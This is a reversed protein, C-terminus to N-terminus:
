DAPYHRRRNRDRQRDAEPHEGKDRQAVLIEGPPRDRTQDGRKDHAHDVHHESLAGRHNIRRADGRGEKQPQQEIRQQMGVSNSRRAGRGRERHEERDNQHAANKLSKEPQHPEAREDLERRMRHHRAELVHRRRQEEEHLNAVHEAEILADAKCTCKAIKAGRPRQAHQHRAQSKRRHPM